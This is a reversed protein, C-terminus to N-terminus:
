RRAGRDYSSPTAARPRPQESAASDGDLKQAFLAITRAYVDARNWSKIVEFNPEGLGGVQDASGAM